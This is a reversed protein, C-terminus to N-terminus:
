ATGRIDDLANKPLYETPHDQWQTLV